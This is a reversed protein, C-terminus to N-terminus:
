PQPRPAADRDTVAIARTMVPGSRPGRKRQRRPEHVIAAHTLGVLVGAHAVVAV